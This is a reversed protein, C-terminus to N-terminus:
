SPKALAPSSSNSGSCLFVSVGNQKATRGRKLRSCKGVSHIVKVGIVIYRHYTANKLLCLIETIEYLTYLYKKSSEVLIFTFSCFETTLVEARTESDCTHSGYHQIGCNIDKQALTNLFLLSVKSRDNRYCVTGPVYYNREQKSPHENIRGSHYYSFLQIKSHNNFYKTECCEAIDRCFGLQLDSSSCHTHLEQKSIHVWRISLECGYVTCIYTVANAPCMRASVQISDRCQWSLVSRCCACSEKNFVLWEYECEQNWNMINGSIFIVYELYQNREELIFSGRASQHRIFSHQLCPNSRKYAKTTNGSARSRCIAPLLLGNKMINGNCRTWPNRWLGPTRKEYDRISSNSYLTWTDTSRGTSISQYLAWM